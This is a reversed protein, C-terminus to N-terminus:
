SGQERKSNRGNKLRWILRSVIPILEIALYISPNSIVEPLSYSFRRKFTFPLSVSFQLSIPRLQGLIVQAM